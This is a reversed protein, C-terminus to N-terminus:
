PGVPQVRCPALRSTVAAGKKEVHAITQLSLAAPNKEYFTNPEYTWGNALRRHERQMTLQLLRGALPAVIRSKIGFAAYLDKLLLNLHEARRRDRDFWKAM